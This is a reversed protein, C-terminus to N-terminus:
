GNIKYSACLNKNSKNDCDIAAVKVLGKLDEAAKKYEPAFSIL